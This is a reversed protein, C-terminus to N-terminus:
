TPNEPKVRSCSTTAIGILKERAGGEGQISGMTLNKAEHDFVLVFDLSPVYWCNSALFFVIRGSRAFYHLLSHRFFQLFLPLFVSAAIFSFFGSVVGVGWVFLNFLGEPTTAFVLSKAIVLSPNRRLKAPTTAFLFIFSSRKWVRSNHCFDQSNRCFASSLPSTLRAGEDNM